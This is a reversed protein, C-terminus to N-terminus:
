NVESSIQMITGYKAVYCMMLYKFNINTAKSGIIKVFHLRRLTACNM